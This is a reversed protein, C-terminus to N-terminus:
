LRQVAFGCEAIEKEVHHAKLHRLWQKTEAKWRYGRAKAKEREDFSVMAQLTVMPQRASEMVEEIPYRELVKLMTLVDFCARHAFPNLFGHEAALHVLKRTTIAEPYPVDMCTDIWLPSWDPPVPLKMRKMQAEWMPKDFGNGNHAVLADAELMLQVLRAFAREPAVGYRDLMEQTIGTLRTIEETIGPGDEHHVLVNFIQMPARAETCWLVAGIETIRDKDFSLGTTEFDIGLLKM